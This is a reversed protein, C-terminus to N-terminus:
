GLEGDVYHIADAIEFPVEEQLFHGAETHLLPVDPFLNEFYRSVSGLVPDRDGWVAAMPGEFSTIYDHVDHLPPVSRHELSDPVMRALALPGIRDEAHRLPYRYAQSARPGISSWDGQGSWVFAQPFEMARFALDSVVPTQSFQHFFTPRFNERPPGFVTNLMVMAAPQAGGQFFSLLGIPGGWDQGVFIFDELGLSATLTGIWRAHNELTHAEAERPKDSLGLGILDPAIIRYGSGLVSAVKRWLFGWTPNGHLVLVPRGEGAEMVHMQRGEVGVTYREFPLM